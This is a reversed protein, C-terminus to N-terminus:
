PLQVVIWLFADPNRNQPEQRTGQNGRRKGGLNEPCRLGDAHYSHWGLAKRAHREHRFGSAETGRDKGGRLDGLLEVTKCTMAPEM